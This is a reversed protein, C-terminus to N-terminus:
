RKYSGELRQADDGGKVCVCSKNLHIAKPPLLGLFGMGDAHHSLVAAISAGKVVPRNRNTRSSNYFFRVLSDINAM